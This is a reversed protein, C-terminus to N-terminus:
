EELPSGSKTYPGRKLFWGSTYFPIGIKLKAHMKNEALEHPNSFIISNVVGSFKTMIDFDSLQVVELTTLLLQNSVGGGM